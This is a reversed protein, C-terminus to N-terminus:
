FLCKRTYTCIVNSLHLSLSISSESSLMSEILHAIKRLKPDELDEFTEGVLISWLSNVIAINVSLHLTIPRGKDADRRLTSFPFFQTSVQNKDRQARANARKSTCPACSECRRRSSSRWAPSASASSEFSASPSAASSRGNVVARALSEQICHFM